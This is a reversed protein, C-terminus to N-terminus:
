SLMEFFKDRAMRFKDKEPVTSDGRAKGTTCRKDLADFVKNAATLWDDAATTRARKEGTRRKCATILDALRNSCYKTFKDRIGKVVGHKAPETNKLKGFDQQSYSLAFALTAVLEGEQPEADDALPIWEATYRQGPHLENYRLAWGEKLEAVAEKSQEEIFDPYQGLVFAAVNELIDASQAGKYGADKMSRIVAADKVGNKTASM